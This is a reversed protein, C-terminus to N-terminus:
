HNSVELAAEEENDEVEFEDSGVYIACSLTKM